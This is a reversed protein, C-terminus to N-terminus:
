QRGRDSHHDVWSSGTTPSVGDGLSTSAAACRHASVPELRHMYAFVCGASLGPLGRGGAVAYLDSRRGLLSSPGRGPTGQGSASVNSLEPALRDHAGDTTEPSLAPQSTAHDALGTQSQGIRGARVLGKTVRRSGYFAEVERMEHIAAARLRQDAEQHASPCRHLYYWQRNVRLFRCLKRVSLHAM